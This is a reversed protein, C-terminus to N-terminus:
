TKEVNIENHDYIVGHLIWGMSPATNLVMM